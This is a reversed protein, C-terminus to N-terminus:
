EAASRTRNLAPIGGAAALAAVHDYGM